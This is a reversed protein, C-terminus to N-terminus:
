AFGERGFSSAVSFLLPFSTEPHILHIAGLGTTYDPEPSLRARHVTTEQTDKGM